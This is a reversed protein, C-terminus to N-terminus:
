EVDFWGGVKKEGSDVVVKQYYDAQAVGGQIAKDAKSIEETVIQKMQEIPVLGGLPRGNIYFGPTGSQGVGRLTEESKLLWDRCDESNMDTKFKEVDMGADKAYGEMTEPSLKEIIPRGDPGWSGTWISKKMEAFKGQKNAACSALGATVAPEHVVMYKSVVRVDNPFAQQLQEVIPYAQYCYPCAFEFGEVVTVKADKPGEIPDRPDLAVSYTKSPDPEAPGLRPELVEIIKDVRKELRALRSDADQPLDKDAPKDATAVTPDKGGNSPAPTDKSCSIAGLSLAGMAAVLFTSRIM